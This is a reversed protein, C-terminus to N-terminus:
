TASLTRQSQHVGDPLLHSVVVAAFTLLGALSLLLGAYALGGGNSIMQALIPFVAGGILGGTNFAFAFGSYRVRVPYLNCLWTSFSANSISWCANAAFLVAGVVWLSGSLLAQASFRSRVPVTTLAAIMSM